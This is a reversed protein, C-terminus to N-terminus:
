AAAQLRGRLLATVTQLTPMAYGVKAALELPADAISDLEPERGARVDQLMSTAFPGAQHLVAVLEELEPDVPRGVRAALGAVETAIDTIVRTIAGDRGMQELTAGTLASVVNTAANRILKRWMAKRIDPELTMAIGARAFGEVLPMLDPRGGIAGVNLEQQGGVSVEGTPLMTARSYVVCGVIQEARFLTKLVGGRDTAQLSLGELPGGEGQFYWWPLGNIAPMLLADRRLVPALQPLLAPLAGSKVAVIVLDRDDLDDVCAVRPRSVIREGGEHLVLGDVEIAVRRVGRAVVSVDHGHTGLRVALATGIAGAGIIGVRLHQM